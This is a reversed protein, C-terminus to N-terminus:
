TFYTICVEICGYAQNEGATRDSKKAKSESNPAQAAMTAFKEDTEEAPKSTKSEDEQVSKRCM